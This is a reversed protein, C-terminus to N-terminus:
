NTPLTLHTYSVAIGTQTPDERSVPTFRVQFSVQDNHFGFGYPPKAIIHITETNGGTGTVGSGLNVSSTTSIRWGEPIDLPQIGVYTEGNGLNTIKTEFDAVDTPGIELLLGKKHEYRVLPHYGVTFQVTVETYGETITFIPSSISTSSAKIIVKGQYFAPANETVKILLNSTVEKDSSVTVPFSTKSLSASVWDDDEM